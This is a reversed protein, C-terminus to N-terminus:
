EGRSSLGYKRMRYRMAMRTIGLRRAAESVNGGSRQLADEIMVAEAQELTMGELGQLPAGPPAIADHAAGTLGLDEAGLHVGGRLWVAREVQHKLERVNGPWRYDRLAAVADATLRPEPLHYRHATQEAFHRALLLVDDGRLRLPPLTVTIEDLRYFLDRRLSGTELMNDLARNTAAIIWAQVPREETSGVRRVTRRGLLALLKAQLDPSLEGIEDLFATGDEAAEILGPRAAHAQTFAGKEHGFLEAEVLEAPLAGCDVQVFPRGQRSSSRHLLRAAVDKGTGTEGLILVTPPVGQSVSAIQAIRAIHSRVRAMSEHEGLLEVGELNRSERERSYELRRALKAQDLVREVALVLEDLDIPKKLYDCARLRVAAVADEFEGHATLIIVPVESKM